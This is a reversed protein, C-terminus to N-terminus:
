ILSGVTNVRISSRKSHAAFIMLILAYIGSIILLFVMLQKERINVAQDLGEGKKVALQPIALAVLTLIVMGMPLMFNQMAKIVGSAEPGLMMAALIIPAQGAILYVIGTLLMWKGFGWNEEWLTRRDFRGKEVPQRYFRTYIFVFAILGSVALLVLTSETSLWKNINLLYLCGVTVFAFVLSYLVAPFPLGMIYFSRRIMWPLQLFAALLGLLIFIIFLQSNGGVARYILSFIIISFGLIFFLVFHFNRQRSLYQSLSKPYKSPGIVSMPELILSNQVQYFLTTMVMALAFIGYNEVSMWRALLVSVLFMSGSYIVLDLISLGGKLVWEGLLRGTATFDTLKRDPKEM